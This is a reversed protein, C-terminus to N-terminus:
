FCCGGSSYYFGCAPDVQLGCERIMEDTLSCGFCHFCCDTAPNCCGSQSSNGGFVSKQEEKTLFKFNKLKKM